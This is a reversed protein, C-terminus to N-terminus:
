RRIEIPPDPRVDRGYVYDACLICNPDDCFLLGGNGRWFKTIRSPRQSWSIGQAKPVTKGSANLYFVEEAEPGWTPLKGGLPLPEAAFVASIILPIM